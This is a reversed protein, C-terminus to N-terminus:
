VHGDSGKLKRDVRVASLRPRINKGVHTENRRGTGGNYSKMGGRRTVIGERVPEGGSNGMLERLHVYPFFGIDKGRPEVGGRLFHTGNDAWDKGDRYQVGGM